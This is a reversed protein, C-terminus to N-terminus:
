NSRQIPRRLTIHRLPGSRSGSSEVVVRIQTKYAAVRTAVDPLPLKLWDLGELNRSGTKLGLGRAAEHFSAVTHPPSFQQAVLAADFPMRYLSSLSGLLWLMQESLLLRDM